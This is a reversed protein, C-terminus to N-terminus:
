YMDLFCKLDYSFVYQTATLILAIIPSLVRLYPCLTVKIKFYNNKYLILPFKRSLFSIIATMTALNKGYIKPAKQFHVHDLCLTLKM